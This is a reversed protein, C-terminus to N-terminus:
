KLTPLYGVLRTAGLHGYGIEYGFHKQFFKNFGFHQINLAKKGKRLLQTM